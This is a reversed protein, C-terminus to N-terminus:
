PWDWLWLPNTLALVTERADVLQARVYRADRPIRLSVAADATAISAGDAIAGDAILALIAGSADVARVLADDGRRDIYLQPGGPTASVFADGRRLAALVSAADTRDGARVWTTPSGLKAHHAARLQHTDSGGLAVIREGACLRSEWFALATANLREWPGNWVEIAPFGRVDEYEWPPGFPKPHCVSVFAGAEVAERM